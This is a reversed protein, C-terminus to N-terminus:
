EDSGGSSASDSGDDGCGAILMASAFMGAMLTKLRM